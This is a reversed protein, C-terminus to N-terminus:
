LSTEMHRSSKKASVAHKILSCLLTNPLPQHCYAPKEFKHKPIKVLKVWILCGRLSLCDFHFRAIQRCYIYNVSVMTSLLLPLVTSCYWTKSSERRCFLNEFCIRLKFLAETFSMIINAVFASIISLLYLLSLFCCNFHRQKHHSAKNENFHEIAWVFVWMCHLLAREGTM